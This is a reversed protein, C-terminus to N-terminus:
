TFSKLVEVVAYLMIVRDWVLYPYQFFFCYSCKDAYKIYKFILLPMMQSNLNSAFYILCEDHELLDLTLYIEEVSMQMLDTMSNKIHSMCSYSLVSIFGLTHTHTVLVSISYLLQLIERSKTGTLWETRCVCMYLCVEAILVVTSPFPSTRHASAELPLRQKSFLYQIFTQAQKNLLHQRQVKVGAGSDCESGWRKELTQSSFYIIMHLRNPWTVERCGTFRSGPKPFNPCSIGVAVVCLSLSSAYLVSLLM